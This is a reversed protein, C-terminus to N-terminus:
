RIAGADRTTDLEINFNNRLERVATRTALLLGRTFDTESLMWMSGIEQSKDPMVIKTRAIGSMKPGDLGMSITIECGARVLAQVSM